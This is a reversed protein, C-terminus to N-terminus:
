FSFINLPNGLKFFVQLKCCLVYINSCMYLAALMIMKCDSLNQVVILSINLIVNLTVLVFNGYDHLNEFQYIKQSSEASDPLTPLEADHICFSKKNVLTVDDWQLGRGSSVCQIWQM